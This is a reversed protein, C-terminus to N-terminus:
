DPLALFSEPVNTTFYNLETQQNAEMYGGPAYDFRYVDTLDLTLTRLVVIGTAEDLCEEVPGRLHAIGWLLAEQDENLDASALLSDAYTKNGSILFDQCRFSGIDRPELRDVQILRNMDVFSPMQTRGFYACGSKMSSLMAYYEESDQATFVRMTCDPTCNYVRGDKWITTTQGDENLVVRKMREGRLYTKTTQNFSYPALLSEAAMREEQTDPVIGYFTGESVDDTVILFNGALTTCSINKLEYYRQADEAMQTAPPTVNTTNVGSLNFQPLTISPFTMASINISGIVDALRSGISILSYIAIVLFIILLALAVTIVTSDRM